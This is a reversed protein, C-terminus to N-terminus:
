YKERFGRASVNAPQFRAAELGTTTRTKPTLPLYERRPRHCESVGTRDVHAQPPRRCHPSRRSSASRPALAEPPGNVPGRQPGDGARTAAYVTTPPSRAHAPPQQRRRGPGPPPQRGRRGAGRWRGAGRPPDDADAGATQPGSPVACPRGHTARRVPPAGRIPEGHDTRGHLRPPCTRYKWALAPRWPAASIREDGGASRDAPMMPEIRDGMVCPLAHRIRRRNRPRDSDARAHLQPKPNATSAPSRKWHDPSASPAAATTATTQGLVSLHDSAAQWSLGM